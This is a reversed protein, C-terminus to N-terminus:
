NGTRESLRDSSQGGATRESRYVSECGWLYCRAKLYTGSCIIVAKCHYAAGSFTQVGTIKGDEVLLNAVEGQKIELNEQAELVRRMTRSYVAKDAQARLSHVAPGKSKNLMKSQIFTRDIVKGM